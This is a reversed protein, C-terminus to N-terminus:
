RAACGAPASADARAALDKLIRRMYANITLLNAVTKESTLWDLSMGYGTPTKVLIGNREAIQLRRWATTHSIGLHAAVMRVTVPRRVSQPPVTNTAAYHRSLEVDAIVRGVGLILVCGVVTAEEWDRFQPNAHFEAFSLYLDMAALRCADDPVRAPDFGLPTGVEVLGDLLRRGLALLAAELAAIRPDDTAAVGEGSQTVLGDRALAHINRRVTEFSRGLSASLANISIARHVSGSRRRAGDRIVATLIPGREIPLGLTMIHQQAYGQQLETLLRSMARKPWGDDDSPTM